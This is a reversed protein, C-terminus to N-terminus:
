IIERAALRSGHLKHGTEMSSPSCCFDKECKANKSTRDGDIETMLWFNNALFHPASCGSRSSKKKAPNQSIKAESHVALHSNLIRGRSSSAPTVPDSLQWYDVPCPLLNGLRLCVPLRLCVCVCLCMRM